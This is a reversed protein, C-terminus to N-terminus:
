RVEIVGTGPIWNFSSHDIIEILVYKTGNVEFTLEKLEDGIKGSVMSMEVRYQADTDTETGDNNVITVSSGNSQGQMIITNYNAPDSGEPLFTNSGRTTRYILNDMEFVLMHNEAATGTYGKPFVDAAGFILEKCNGSNNEECVNLKFAAPVEVHDTAEATLTIAFVLTTLCLVGVAIWISRNM